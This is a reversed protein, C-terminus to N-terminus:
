VNFWGWEINEKARKYNGSRIKFNLDPFQFIKIISKKIQYKGFKEVLLPHEKEIDKLIKSKSVNTKYSKKFIHPVIAMCKIGENNQMETDIMNWFILEELVDGSTLIYNKLRRKYVKLKFFKKEFRNFKKQFKLNFIRPLIAHRRPSFFLSGVYKNSYWIEYWEQFDAMRFPNKSITKFRWKDIKIM